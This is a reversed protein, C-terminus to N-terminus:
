FESHAGSNEEKTRLYKETSELNSDNFDKSFHKMSSISKQRGFYARATQSGGLAPTVVVAEL